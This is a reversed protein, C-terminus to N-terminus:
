IEDRSVWGVCSSIADRLKIDYYFRSVSACVIIVLNNEDAGCAVNEVCGM